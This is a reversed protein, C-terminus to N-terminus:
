AFKRSYLDLIWSAGAPILEYVGDDSDASTSYRVTGVDQVTVSELEGAQVSTSGELAAFARDFVMLLAQQLDLPIPYTPPEGAMISYGGTYVIELHHFVKYSDFLLVGIMTNLHYKDLESTADADSVKMETIEIVPYLKLSLDHGQHHAYQESYDETYFLKRDCYTEILRMGTELALMIEEDQSADNPDLGVRERLQEITLSM